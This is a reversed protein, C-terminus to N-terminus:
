LSVLITQQQTVVAAVGAIVGTFVCEGTKKVVVILLEAGVVLVVIVCTNITDKVNISAMAVSETPKPIFVAGTHRRCVGVAVCDGATLM